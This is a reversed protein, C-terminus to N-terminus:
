NYAVLQSTEPTGNGSTRGYVTFTTIHRTGDLDINFDTPLMVEPGINDQEAGYYWMFEAMSGSTAGDFLLTQWDGQQWRESGDSNTLHENDVTISEIGNGPTLISSTAPAEPKDTLDIIADVTSLDQGVLTASSAVRDNGWTFDANAQ